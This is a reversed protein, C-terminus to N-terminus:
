LHAISKHFTDFDFRICECQMGKYNLATLAILCNRVEPRLMDEKHHKFNPDTGDRRLIPPVKKENKNDSPEAVAAGASPKGRPSLIKPTPASGSPM